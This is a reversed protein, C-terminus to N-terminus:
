PDHPPNRGDHDKVGGPPKEAGDSFADMRMRRRVIGFIFDLMSLCEGSM